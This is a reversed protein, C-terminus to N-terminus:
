RATQTRPLTVTFVTGADEESDVAITGGHAETIARAIFLGLGLSTAPRGEQQGAGGLQVMPNFIADLSDKPIVPGRNRVEVTVAEQDGRAVISVAHETGRYQAANNLLNSFVQQLRSKDFDDLLEGSAKLEFRCDPHAASADDLAAHCIERVDVLQRTIPIAGGIQQRAYELLDHVMANMTAASRKVRGGVHVTGETGVGQKTLYDGAMTITALPSRLDHGLIALFTDRTHEAQESFTLASEALAQDIAENFRLMDQTTADTIKRITPMWLKLISARMARYEAILQLMTFGSEQRVTGHIGAASSDGKSDPALGKSKSDKEASTENVEIKRAIEELIQKGHDRLAKDSMQGPQPQMARAFAEWEKLIEEINSTIFRSLKM